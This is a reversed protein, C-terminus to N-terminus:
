EAPVVESQQAAEADDARRASLMRGGFGRLSHKFWRRAQVVAPPDGDGRRFEVTCTVRFVENDNATAM